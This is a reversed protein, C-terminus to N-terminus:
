SRLRPNLAEELGNSFFICAMQFLGLCMIPSILYIYGKPNFIGGTNQVALQIMMGWNTPSYPALGLMMLGVSAVIAGQAAMIFNIALYPTLNPLIERFLIYPTKLGMIRCAIIFERNKLSLLQSRIARALPAWSWAALIFSFMIPNKIQVLAAVIMLVPFSPVTLFLNTIFMLVTDTKGGVFGSVAGIVFGLVLTFLAAFLGISLVDRSGYVLQLFTDRGGYDTGLWHTFSPSKYRGDFNVTMDLSAMMPGFIAMFIFIALIIMGSFAKKNRYMTQWFDIFGQSM